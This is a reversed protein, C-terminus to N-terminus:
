LLFCLSRTKSATLTFLIHFSTCSSLSPPLFLPLQASLLLFPPQKTTKRYMRWFTRHFFIHILTNGHVQTSANWHIFLVLIVHCWFQIHSLKLTKTKVLASTSIILLKISSGTRSSWTHSSLSILLLYIDSGQKKWIFCFIYLPQNLLM